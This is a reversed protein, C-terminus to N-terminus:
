KTTIWSRKENRFASDIKDISCTSSITQTRGIHWNQGAHWVTKRNHVSDGKYWDFLNGCVERNQQWEVFRVSDKLIKWNVDYRKSMIAVRGCNRRDTNPVIDNKTCSLLIALFLFNKM